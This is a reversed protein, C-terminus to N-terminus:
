KSGPIKQVVERRYSLLAKEVTELWASDTVFQRGDEVHVLVSTPTSTSSLSLDTAIETHVTIAWFGPQVWAWFKKVQVDIVLAGPETPPNALVEYGSETLAVALNDRVVSDVTQGDQLFVDGLAKGFGNRKRGIARAKAAATAQAAGEFGLSPTSAERPAQEFSREDKVSRIYAPLAKGSKTASITAPSAGPTSLRLESRSTACGGLAVALVLAPITLYRNQFM